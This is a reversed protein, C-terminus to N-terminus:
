SGCEPENTGSRKAVLAMAEAVVAAPFGIKELLRLANRERTPGPRLRFDFFGETQPDETFHFMEFRDPLLEQLEVDHTTALVQGARSLAALVAKAAAIREETNTGSFPEDLVILRPPESGPGGAARALFSLIAEIEDFYRSKGSEVSHEGRICSAVCCRPILVRRALCFGSTRGLIANIAVMKIFTTKGAMNSGCILASRSALRISNPVSDAILPHRGGEIELTGAPGFTAECHTEFRELSAAIAIAADLTGVLEYIARLDERVAHVRRVTHMYAHWEALCLMNLWAGSGAPLRELLVLWGFARRARRRIAGADCLAILQPVCSQPAIRSLGDAVRVMQYVSKLTNVVSDRRATVAIIAMINIVLAPVALLPPIWLLIAAVILAISGLSWLSMLLRGRLGATIEDHLADVIHAASDIGLTRLRLQIRERLAADRRLAQATAYRRAAAEDDVAY